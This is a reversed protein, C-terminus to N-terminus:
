PEGANSAVKSRNARLPQNSLSNKKRSNALSM